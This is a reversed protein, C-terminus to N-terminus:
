LDVAAVSSLQAQRLDFGSMDIICGAWYPDVISTGQGRLLARYRGCGEAKRGDRRQDFSDRHNRFANCEKHGRQHQCIATRQSVTTCRFGSRRDRPVSKAGGRRVVGLRKLGPRSFMRPRLLFDNDAWEVSGRGFWIALNLWFVAPFLLLVGILGVLRPGLTFEHNATCAKGAFGDAVVCGIADPASRNM